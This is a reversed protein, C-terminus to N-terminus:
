LPRRVRESREVLFPAIVKTKTVNGEFSRSKSSWTSAAAPRAPLEGDEAFVAALMAAEEVTM